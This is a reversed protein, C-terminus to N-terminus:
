TKYFFQITYWVNLANASADNSVFWLSDGNQLKRMAKTSGENHYNSVWEAGVILQGWAIVDQEPVYMAGAATHNTLNGPTLGERCKVICWRIVTNEVSGNIGAVQWRLGTITGPFNVGANSAGTGQPYIKEKATATGTLDAFGNVLQKDIPRKQSTSYVAKRYRRVRRPMTTLIYKL